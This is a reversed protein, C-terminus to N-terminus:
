GMVESEATDGDGDGVEFACARRRACYLDMVGKAEVDAEAGRRVETAYVVLRRDKGLSVLKM